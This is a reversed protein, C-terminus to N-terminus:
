NNKGEDYIKMYMRFPRRWWWNFYKRECYEKLEVVDGNEIHFGNIDGLLGMKDVVIYGQKKIKM